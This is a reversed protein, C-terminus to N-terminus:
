VRKKGTTLTDSIDKIRKELETPTRIITTNVKGNPMNSIDTESLDRAMAKDQEMMQPLNSWKPTKDLDRGERHM